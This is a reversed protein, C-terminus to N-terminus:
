TAHITQEKTDLISRIKEALFRRTLPKVLFERCGIEKARQENVKSSFGTCLIVPFDPNNDLLQKALEFGTIHPMTQDTILIDFQQQHEKLLSLAQRSDATATVQYGLSSLMAKGMDLLFTDDDVLLVRENGLPVPQSIIDESIAAQSTKPFFLRFTTGQGRSSEVQINGEHAQMVGYVVSLGLGTGQDEAKTTFFPEFIREILAEDIGTGSDKIEIVSYTDPPIPGLIGRVPQAITKEKLVISLEGMEDMAHIANTVLNMLAEHVKTSDAIVPITDRQVRTTLSVTSPISARFLELVEKVIPRLYTPVLKESGQHSFTLIQSVMHKARDSAKLINCMYKNIQRNDEVELLTMEAYGIIAALVNNFDHAIGGALQGIAQMKQAQLLQEELQKQKYESIKRETIDRLVGSICMVNGKKDRVIQGIEEFWLTTGDRTAVRFEIIRQSDTTLTNQFDREIRLKDETLILSVFPQGVLEKLNFGYREIQPGLFQILGEASVVYIIDHMSSVLGRYREESELLRKVRARVLLYSLLGTTCVFFAGKLTQLVSLAKASNGALTQVFMDSFVIWMVSVAIYIGAITLASGDRPLHKHSFSM